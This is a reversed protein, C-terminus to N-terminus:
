SPQRDRKVKLVLTFNDQIAQQASGSTGGEGELRLNMTKGAAITGIKYDTQTGGDTGDAQIDYVEGQNESGFSVAKSAGSLRLWIQSRKVNGKGTSDFESKKIVNINAAGDSDEFRSVEVAIQEDGDNRITMQASNLTGDKTVNFTTATPVTVKITGPLANGSNDLINGTIDVDVNQETQSPLITVEGDTTSPTAAFASVSTSAVMAGALVLSLLKKKM